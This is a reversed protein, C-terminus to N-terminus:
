RDGKQHDWTDGDDTAMLRAWFRRIAAAEGDSFTGESLRNMSLLRAAEEMEYPYLDNQKASTTAAIKARQALTPRRKLQRRGSLSSFVETLEDRLWEAAANNRRISPAAYLWGLNTKMDANSLREGSFGPSNSLYEIFLERPFQQERFFAFGAEVWDSNVGYGVPRGSDSSWGYISIKGVLECVSMADLIIEDLRRVKLKPLVQLRGLLYRGLSVACNREALSLAEAHAPFTVPMMPTVWDLKGESQQSTMEIEHIPCVRVIPLDFWTRHYPEEQM